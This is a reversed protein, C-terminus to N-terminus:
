AVEARPLRVTVCTGRAATSEIALQGGRSEIFARALFVGLGLGRGPQKTTFFPEGVRAIVDPAIGTGHDTVVLEIRDGVETVTLQVPQGATSADLANGILAALSQVMPGPQVRVAGGPQVPAIEVQVAQWDADLEDAVIMALGTTVGQGMESHHIRITIRGDSAIRLWANPTFDIPAPGWLQDAPTVPEGRSTWYVSLLLAGVAGAGTTLFARRTLKTM